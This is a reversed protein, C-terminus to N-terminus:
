LNTKMDPRTQDNASLQFRCFHGRRLQGEERHLAYVDRWVDPPLEGADEALVGTHSATWQVVVQGGSGSRFTVRTGVLNFGDGRDESEYM